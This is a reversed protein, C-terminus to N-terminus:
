YRGQAINKGFGVGEALGPIFSVGRESGLGRHTADTLGKKLYSGGLRVRWDPAHTLNEMARVMRPQFPPPEEHAEVEQVKHAHLQKLVSPTLRTGVTYHLVPRELYRGKAMKPALRQSGPRPRYTREVVGYEMIDHPLGGEVGDLEDIEVHNILGRTLLEVNRRNAKLGAKRYADIFQKVFLRRGEGMGKHRVILAPNPLGDSLIDGAEVVDGVRVHPNSGEPVYHDKGGIRVYQGGAPAPGIREVSGDTEAIAAPNRFSSPVQVMQNIREFDSLQEAAEETGTAKHKSGLMAQSLQETLSTAAVTGVNEGIQPFSGGERVGVCYQCVGADAECTLPSRVLVPRDKLRSLDRPTLVAGAKLDGVPAALVAGDNASDDASVPIGRATGCDKQTVVQRHAAQILQKSLYGAQATALKVDVMGKRSGYSAGWYESPDLGHAYSNLVPIDTPRNRHDTVVMDGALMSRLNGKNGRSGSLVQLAFPNGTRLGEEYITSEIKPAAAWVAKRIAAGRRDDPLQDDNIIDRVEARLADIQVQAAPPPKLDSLAFSSGQQHAVRQGIQNLRYVVDKYRDPHRDALQSLLASLQKKDVVRSYDRLDPPLAQNILLQGVTTEM